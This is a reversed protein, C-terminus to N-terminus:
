SIAIQQNMEILRCLQDLEIFLVKKNALRALFRLTGKFGGDFYQPAIVAILNCRNDVMGQEVFQRIIEQGEKTTSLMPRNILENYSKKNRGNNTNKKIIGKMEYSIGNAIIQGSIDGYETGKHPQPRFDPIVTYFVKPLCSMKPNHLCKSISDYSCSGCKENLRVAFLRTKDSPESISNNFVSIDDFFIEANKDSSEQRQIYLMDGAVYIRLSDDITIFIKRLNEKVLLFYKETPIYWNEIRCVHNEPCVARVTTSCSCTLKGFRDYKLAKGCNDCHPLEYSECIECFVRPICIFLRSEHFVNMVERPISVTFKDENQELSTLISGLLWDLGYSYESSIGAWKITVGLESYRAKIPKGKSKEIEELIINIASETWKFLLHSPLRKFIGISGKGMNYRVTTSIDEGMETIYSGSTDIRNLRIREVESEQEKTLGASRSIATKEGEIGQLVIRSLSATQICRDIAKKPPKIQIIDIGLTEKIYEIACYTMGDHKSICALYSLCMGIWICGRHQEWVCDRHGDENIYSHEKSYVYLIELRDNLNQVSLINLNRFSSNSLYPEKIHEMTHLADYDDDNLKRSFSWLTFTIRDGYIYDNVLREIEDDSLVGQLLLANILENKDKKSLNADDCDREVLLDHLVQWPLSQLKERKREPTMMEM